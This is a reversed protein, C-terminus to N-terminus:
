FLYPISSCKNTRSHLTTTKYILLMSWTKNLNKFYSTNFWSNLVQLINTTNSGLVLFITYHIITSAHCANNWTPDSTNSFKYVLKKKVGNHICSRKPKILYNQKQQVSRNQSDIGMQGVWGGTAVRSKPCLSYRLSKLMWAMLWSNRSEAPQNRIQLPRTVWLKSNM